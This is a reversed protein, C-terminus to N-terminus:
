RSMTAEGRRSSFGLKVPPALQATRVAPFLPFYYYDWAFNIDDYRRFPFILDTVFTNPTEFLAGEFFTELYVSQNNFVEQKSNYTKVQASNPDFAERKSPLALVPDMKSLADALQGHAFPVAINGLPGLVAASPM